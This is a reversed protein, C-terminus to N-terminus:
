WGFDVASGGRVEDGSDNDSDVPSASTNDDTGGSDSRSRGRNRRKKKSGEKSMRGVEDNVLSYMNLAMGAERNEATQDAVSVDVEYLDSVMVAASFSSWLTLMLLLIQRM